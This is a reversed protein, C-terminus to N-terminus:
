KLVSEVFARLAKIHLYAIFVEKFNTVLWRTLQKQLKAEENQYKEKLALRVSRSKPDYDRVVFRFMLILGLLLLVIIDIIM